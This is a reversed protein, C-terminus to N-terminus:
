KIWKIKDELPSMVKVLAALANVSWIVTPWGMTQNPTFVVAAIALSLSGVFITWWGVLELKGVRSICKHKFSNILMSAMVIISGILLDIECLTVLWAYEAEQFFFSSPPLWQFWHAMILIILFIPVFFDFPRLRIETPIINYIRKLAKKFM